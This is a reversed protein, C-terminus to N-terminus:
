MQSQSRWIAGDMVTNEKRLWLTENLDDSVNRGEEAARSASNGLLVAEWPHRRKHWLKITSELVEKGGKSVEEEVADEM